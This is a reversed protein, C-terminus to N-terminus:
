IQSSDGQEEIKKVVEEIFNSGELELFGVKMPIYYICHRKTPPYYPNNMIRVADKETTIIFKRKGELNNYVKFIDNFDGRTFDHHDDYHMMKLKTSFQRLYRVLPKPTAIGTLCLM